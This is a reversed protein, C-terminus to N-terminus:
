LDSNVVPSGNFTSVDLLKKSDDMHATEITISTIRDLPLRSLRREKVPRSCPCAGFIEDSDHSGKFSMAVIVNNSTLVEGRRQESSLSNGGSVYGNGSCSM